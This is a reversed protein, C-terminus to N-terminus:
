FVSMNMLGLLLPRVTETHGGEKPRSAGTTPDPFDDYRMAQEDPLKVINRDDKLHAPRIGLHPVL